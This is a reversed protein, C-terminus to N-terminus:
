ALLLFADWGCAPASDTTITHLALAAGTAGDMLDPDSMPDCAHLQTALETALAPLEAALHPNDGDTAMRWAAQLLGAKGHCLGVDPLLARQTPDRLAALMATEADRRRSADDLAIGALQHARATGAVGYCWSPRPRSSATLRGTNDTTTLYGPWWPDGNTHQREQDTWACLAAIADPGDPLPVQHILALSLLAIVASMGHAVGLNAHGHPFRDPDPEGTLAVPLWWPPRGPVLSRQKGANLPRTLAVLYALVDRTIQHQPHRTLHYVGLGTLGHVLDFERMPLPDGRDIRAHAADLRARTLAHVTNDVAALARRYRDTGGAAAHLVFGLAPAGHFLNANPGASVPERGAMALWDHALAEDGHGRRAREIHLLAIGIAGGALSQPRGRGDASTSVTQPDALAEAVDAVAHAALDTHTTITTM